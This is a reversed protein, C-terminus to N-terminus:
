TRPIVEPNFKILIVTKPFKKGEVAVNHATVRAPNTLWHKDINKIQLKLNSVFEASCLIGEIIGAVFAACNLSSLNKPLSIFKNVIMNADSIMYEDDAETSKELSDAQKGFLAKWVTSHIFSLIGLLKTERKANKERVVLLELVRTGVLFGIDSLKKELEHGAKIRDQSYQILESFLFAFSSLNIETKGKSLPRDVINVANKNVNFNTAM